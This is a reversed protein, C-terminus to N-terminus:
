SVSSETKSGLKSGSTPEFSWKFLTNIWEDSCGGDILCIFMKLRDRGKKSFQTFEVRNEFFLFLLSPFRCSQGTGKFTNKLISYFLSCKSSTEVGKGTLYVPNRHTKSFIEYPCMSHALLFNLNTSGSKQLKLSIAVKQLQNQGGQRYPLTFNKNSRLCYFNETPRGGKEFNSHVLSSLPKLHM